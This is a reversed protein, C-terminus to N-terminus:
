AEYKEHCHLILCNRQDLGTKKPQTLHHPYQTSFYSERSEWNYVKESNPAQVKKDLNFKLPSKITFTMELVRCVVTQKQVLKACFVFRNEINQFSFIWNPGNQPLFQCSRTCKLLPFLHFCM